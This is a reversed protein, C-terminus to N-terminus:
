HQLYVVCLIVNCHVKIWFPGTASTVYLVLLLLYLVLCFTVVRFSLRGLFWGTVGGWSVMYFQFLIAKDRGTLIPPLWQYEDSWKLAVCISLPYPCPTPKQVPSGDSIVSERFPTVGLNLTLAKSVNATSSLRAPNRTNRSPFGCRNSPPSLPWSPVALGCLTNVSQLPSSRAVLSIFMNM